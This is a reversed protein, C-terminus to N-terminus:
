KKTRKRRKKFILLCSLCSCGCIRKREKVYKQLVKYNVPCIQIDHYVTLSLFLYKYRAQIEIYINITKSLIPPFFHFFYGYSAAVYCLLHHYHHAHRNRQDYQIM